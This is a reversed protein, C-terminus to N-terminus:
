FFYVNIWSKFTDLIPVSVNPNISSYARHSLTSADVFKVEYILFDIEFQATSKGRQKIYNANDSLYQSGAQRVYEQLYRKDGADYSRAMLRM